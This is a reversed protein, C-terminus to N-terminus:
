IVTANQTGVACRGARVICRDLQAGAEVRGGEWIVSNKVVSNAGIQARAGVAFFGSLQSGPIITASPNVAEPWGSPSYALRNEALWAHADLYSDISGLDFWNGEDEVYGGISAGQRILDLYIPIISVVKRPPIHRLLEPSAISIGTFLFAPETHGGLADRIDTVAGKAEDCRVQLPGGSSRLILTALHGNRRHMECAAALPVDALVDGNYVIFDEAGLLDEVNGIGGGTDLLVPEHRYTVRRGEYAAGILGAYAEPCHHTNVVFEEVGGAILHDFAFTILPKGYIPVLPKPREDTLPRLRTGLGAGLVFARRPIM